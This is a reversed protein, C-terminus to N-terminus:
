FTFGLDAPMLEFEGTFSLEVTVLPVSLQDGFRQYNALRTSYHAPNFYSTIAWM